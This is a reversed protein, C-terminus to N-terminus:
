VRVNLLKTVEQRKENAAESIRSRLNQCFVSAEMCYLLTAARLDKAVDSFQISNKRELMGQLSIELTMGDPISHSNMADLWGRVEPEKKARELLRAILELGGDVNNIYLPTRKEGPKSAENERLALFWGIDMLAIEIQNLTGGFASYERRDMEFESVM